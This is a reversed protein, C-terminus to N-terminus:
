DDGSPDASRDAGEGSVLRRSWFRLRHASIVARRAAERLIPLARNRSRTFRPVAIEFCGYRRKYEGEGGWDFRTAGAAKLRRLAYWHLAQNPRMHQYAGYSANGWFQGMQGHFPYIGTAISRGEPDRARLLLLRGVPHLRRILNRVREADYSPSTRSKQFVELLQAYYEEAFEPDGDAEEVTVGSKDAKRICRRVSSKFNKFLDDESLTLDTEFSLQPTTEFGLATGEEPQLFRDVIEFHMCGLDSFAYNTLAELAAPRSVDAPLNFGMYPTTWGPLPSGLIKFGLKSFLAGTFWGVRRGGDTAEAVIPRVGKSEELFELWQKTQYVLRDPFADAEEWPVASLPVTRFRM